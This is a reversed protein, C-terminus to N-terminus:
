IFTEMLLFRDITIGGERQIFHYKMALNCSTISFLFMVFFLGHAKPPYVSM